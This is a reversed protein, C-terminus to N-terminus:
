KLDSDYNLYFKSDSNKLRKGRSMLATEMKSAYM